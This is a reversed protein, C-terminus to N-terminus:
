WSWTPTTAMPGAQASRSRGGAEGSGRSVTDTGEAGAWGVVAWSISLPPPQRIRCLRVCDAQKGAGLLGLLLGTDLGAGEEGASVAGAQTELVLEKDEEEEGRTM